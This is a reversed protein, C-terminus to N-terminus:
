KKNKKPSFQGKLIEEPSLGQKLLAAIFPDVEDYDSDDDISAATEDARKYTPKAKPKTASEPVSRGAQRAEQVKFKSAPKNKVPPRDAANIKPKNESEEIMAIDLLSDADTEQSTSNFKYSASTEQVTPEDGIPRFLFDLEEETIKISGAKEPDFVADALAKKKEQLLLMKEELTGTAIMKYVFVPKTQGIRHARDTAQNEVAPNWWPDYHIVTDAATLNLGTGGAKLSLLFVPVDENQFKRVPEARDKTDGRIEVFEIKLKSLEDAILDLMSAFQSFILMKRKEEVLQSIMELLHSLKASDKAKHKFTTGLLRPDCCAQRLRLLAELIVIQSRKFGKQEIEDKIKEHMALRVTEYLDRQAGDLQVNEIMVTKAPLEAAVEGKTRRLMFPRVKVSLLKQRHTDGYKEIPQRFYTQFTKQDSLYGPILFHFQSWLDGLHNEVPTGTLCIRYNSKLQFAAQAALTDPNRIFQAEDLVVVHWQKKCLQHKDRHLLPYTTVVVDHEYIQKFNSLREAGHLALIRLDPSFRKAEAIWNPLVSTPCVILAPYNLRGDNKEILLHCLTQVTKGLGMDDALVGGVEFERLFNLWGLGEKQYERLTAQFNAPANIPTIEKFQKVREALRALRSEAELTICKGQLEAAQWPNIRINNADTNRDFIDLIVRLLDRVREFPLIVISGDNLPAYFKGDINLHELDDPGYIYPAKKLADILIPLLSVKSGNVDIGIDLSFWWDSEKEVTSSWEEGAEVFQITFSPDIEVQWGQQQLLPLDVQLFKFWNSASATKEYAERKPCFPIRDFTKLLNSVMELGTKQLEQISDKEFHLNRVVTVISDNEVFTIEKKNSTFDIGGIGYDFTLAVFPAKSGLAFGLRLLEDDHYTVTKSQLILKRIPDKDIVKREGTDVPLALKEGATVKELVLRVAKAERDELEPAAMFVELASKAFPIELPGSTANNLDVYWPIPQLYTKIDGASPVKLQPIQKGNPLLTWTLEAQLQSGLSLTPQLISHLYCRGTEIMKSFCLQILTGIDDLSQYQSLKDISDYLAAIECDKSSVRGVNFRLIDIAAARKLRTGNRGRSCFYISPNLTDYKWPVDLTQLGYIVDSVEIENQTRNKDLLATELSHLWKATKATILKEEKYLSYTTVETDGEFGYIQGTTLLLAVSHKCNFFVPCTCYAIDITWVDKRKKFTIGPKYPRRKSGQVKGKLYPMDFEISEAEVHNDLFYQEGRAYTRPEFYNLIESRSIPLPRKVQM